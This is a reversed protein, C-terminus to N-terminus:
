EKIKIMGFEITTQAPFGSVRSLIDYDNSLIVNKAGLNMLQEELRRYDGITKDALIITDATINQEELFVDIMNNTLSHLTVIRNNILVALKKTDNEIVKIYNPLNNTSKISNQAIFEQLVDNSESRVYTEPTIINLVPIELSFIDKTHTSDISTVIFNDIKEYGFTYLYESIQSGADTYKSSGCDILTVEDQYTVLIAQGDYVPFITTIITNYENYSVYILSSFYMLFCIPMTFKFLNKFVYSIVFLIIMVIGVILLIESDTPVQSFKFSALSEVFFMVIDILIKIVYTFIISIPPIVFSIVLFIATSIFILPIIPLILMNSVLYISSISDFYIILPLTTTIAVSLSTCISGIVFKNFFKFKTKIKDYIDNYFYIIGGSSAFSLVFGVDLMSYPNMVLVIVFAFWISIKSSYKEMFINGLILLINMTCARFISPSYGIIVFFFLIVFIAVYNGYKKGFILFSISVLYGVHLGSVVLIHSIGAKSIDLKFKSSFDTKDGLMLGKLFASYDDDFYDDIKDKIGQNVDNAIKTLSFKENKVIEYNNVSGLITIGKSKYYTISDFGNKNNPQYFYANGFIEDSVDAEFNEENIYIMTKFTKNNITIEASIRSYDDYNIVQEIIKGSFDLSQGYFDSTDNIYEYINFSVFGLCVSLLVYKLVALKNSVLIAALVVAIGMIIIKNFEFNLAIITIIYSIAFLFMKNM